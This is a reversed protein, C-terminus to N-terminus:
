HTADGAQHPEELVTIGRLAQAERYLQFATSIAMFAFSVILVALFPWM